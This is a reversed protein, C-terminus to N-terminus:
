FFKLTGLKLVISAIYIFIAQILVGENLFVSPSLLSTHGGSQSTKALLNHAKNVVSDSM